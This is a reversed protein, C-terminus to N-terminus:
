VRIPSRPALTDPMDPWRSNNKKLNEKGPIVQLNAECHLGCVLPNLIPVIHDVHHVAGTAEQLRKSEQYFALIANKDAWKPIANFEAVQRARRYADVRPRNNKKWERIRANCAERNEERYRQEVARTKELNNDRWAKKYANSM